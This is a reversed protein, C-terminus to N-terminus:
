SVRVQSPASAVDRDWLEAVWVWASGLEEAAHMSVAHIFAANSFTM